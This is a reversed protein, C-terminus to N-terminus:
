SWTSLNHSLSSCHSILWSNRTWQKCTCHNHAPKKLRETDTERTFHSFYYVTEKFCWGISTFIIYTFTGMPSNFDRLFYLIFAKFFNCKISVIKFQHKFDKLSTENQFRKTIRTHYSPLDLHARQLCLETFHFMWATLTLPCYWTLLSLFATKVVPAIPNALSNMWTKWLLKHFGLSVKQDPWYLM